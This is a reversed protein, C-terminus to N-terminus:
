SSVDFAEALKKGLQEDMLPVTIAQDPLDSGGQKEYNCSPTLTVISGNSEIGVSRAGKALTSWSRVGVAELMPRQVNKWEDQAPHPLGQTSNALAERIDNAIEDTSSIPSVYVPGRGIWVGATTQGYGQTYVRGSRLIASCLKM